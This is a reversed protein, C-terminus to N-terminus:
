KVDNRPTTYTYRSVCRDFPLFAPSHKNNKTRDIVFVIMMMMMMMM